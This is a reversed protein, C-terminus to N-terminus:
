GSLFAYLRAREEPDHEMALISLAVDRRRLEHKLCLRLLDNWKMEVLKIKEGAAEHNATDDPILDTAVYIGEEFRQMGEHRWVHWSQFRGPRFRAEERFERIAADELSEGPDVRGGPVDWFAHPLHPQEQYTLLVTDRDLFPIVAVTDERVYCEFTRETGDYM